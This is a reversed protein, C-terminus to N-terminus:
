NLSGVVILKSERRKSMERAFSGRKKMAGKCFLVVGKGFLVVIFRQVRNELYQNAVILLSGSNRPNEQL